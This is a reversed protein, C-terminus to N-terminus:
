FRLTGKEGGREVDIAWDRAPTAVAAADLPAKVPSPAAAFAPPTALGAALAAAALGMLLRKM